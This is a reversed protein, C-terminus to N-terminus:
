RAWTGSRYLLETRPAPEREHPLSGNTPCAETRPPPKGNQSLLFCIKGRKARLKKETKELAPRDWCGTSCNQEHPPRKCYNKRTNQLELFQITRTPPPTWQIFTKKFQKITSIKLRNQRHQMSVSRALVVLEKGWGFIQSNELLTSLLVFFLFRAERPTKGM